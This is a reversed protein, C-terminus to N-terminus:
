QDFGGAKGLSIVKLIGYEFYFNIFCLFDKNNLYKIYYYKEGGEIPDEFTKESEYTYRGTMWEAKPEGFVKKVDDIASLGTTLGFVTVGDGVIDFGRVIYDSPEDGESFAVVVDKFIYCDAGLGYYDKEGTGFEDIAKQIPDGIKLNYVDYKGENFCKMYLDIGTLTFESETSTIAPTSSIGQPFQSSALSSEIKNFATSSTGQSITSPASCGVVFIIMTFILFRKKM